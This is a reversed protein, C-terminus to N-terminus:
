LPRCPPQIANPILGSRWHRAAGGLRSGSQRWTQQQANCRDDARGHLRLGAADPHVLVMPGERLVNPRLSIMRPRYRIRDPPAELREHALRNSVFLGKPRGKYGRPRHM